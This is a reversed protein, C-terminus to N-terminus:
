HIQDNGSSININKIGYIKLIKQVEKPPDEIFESPLFMSKLEGDPGIIFVYDEEDMFSEYSDEKKSDITDKKM